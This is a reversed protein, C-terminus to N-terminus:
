DTTFVVDVWFSGPPFDQNPFGTGARYFSGLGRLAPTTVPFVRKNTYEWSWSYHGNPAHYSVVYVAGATVTVPTDFTLTQWGTATEGTFTGTALLTGSQSWLSGTHTGTNNASKLFKVGAIKGNVQPTFSMGLEYANGDNQETRDPLEAESFVSCPCAATGTVFSFALEPGINTSPDSASISVFYRNERSLPAVPTWVLTHGNDELTLNGQLKVAARTTVDFRTGTLTVPEDYTARISVNRDVGTSLHNPSYGTFNPPTQDAYPTFSVDVWNNASDFSSPFRGGDLGFRGNAYAGGPTWLPGASIPSRRDFYRPTYSQVGTPTTYSAVYVTDKRIVLPPDLTLTQWGSETENTFTGTALRTGFDNWISGTHTGTNGPGKYFKIASIVGNYPSGFRIGLEHAGGLPWGSLVEPVIATSFLSSAGPATAQTTFTWTAPAVLGNGNPDTANLTVRYRTGPTYDGNATWTFSKRDAAWAIAGSLGAGGDDVVQFSTSATDIAESFGVSVTGTLPADTANPAPTRTDVTPRVHDGNTGNVYIVDVWYNTALHGSDPFGGGYKFAGNRANQTDAPAVIQSYSVPNGSVFYSNNYSYHGNPAYYSVVYDTGTEVVVPSSFTLTQWGVSTENTFTGTALPTGAASWLTGTHTGTNGPGKYFRVGLVEGRGTFRVRTGLEVAASDTASDNGPTTFDHWLTCPCDAPRPRGTIFSWTYQATQNGAADKVRVAAVYSTAPSLAANPTLRAITGNGLVTTQAAVPGGPGTLTFQVSAPDLVEDYYATLIGQLFATGNGPLPDVSLLDPATTDPGAEPAWVVDVWYNADNATRDPFGAGVQFVGNPGDTGSQLGTLPELYRASTGFYGADVAFHGTPSFYSAIYTTNGTVAVPASFVLTQWGTATEDRFTGVALRQGSASWLSGTHTGTNGAGKYFRIGRVYGSGAARWKVGLELASGDAVDPNAPTDADTWLGCPCLRPAVAPGATALSTQNHAADVTRASLQATGSAAPTYTHSWATQGAQWTAAQWRGGGDTSVEVGAVQGVDSVTGSFTYAAGVTAGTPVDTFAIAPDAQAAPTFSVVPVVAAFVVAATLRAWGPRHRIGSLSM